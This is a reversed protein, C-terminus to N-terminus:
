DLLHASTGPVHRPTADLLATANRPNFSDQSPMDTPRAGLPTPQVLRHPNTPPNSGIFFYSASAILYARILSTPEVQCAPACPISPKARRAAPSHHAVLRTPSLCATTSQPPKSCYQLAPDSPAPELRISPRPSAGSSRLSTAFSLAADTFHHHTPRAHPPSRRSASM